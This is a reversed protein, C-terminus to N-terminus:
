AGVFMFIASIVLPVILAAALVICIIRKAKDDFRM